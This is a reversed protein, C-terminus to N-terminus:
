GVVEGHHALFQWFGERGLPPVRFTHFNLGNYTLVERSYGRPFYQPLVVQAEHEASPYYFLLGREPDLPYDNDEKLAYAMRRPLDHLEVVNDWWMEGAEIAFVRYDWWHPTGVLFANGFAGESEVFGQLISAAQSYPTLRSSRHNQLYWGRFYIETNRHNAHLIAGCFLLAALALAFRRPMTKLLRMAILGFPLAAVLYVFPLAGLLRVPNPHYQYDSALASPLMLILIVLPMAWMIPDRSSLMRTLWAALGLVLFTAFVIDMEPTREDIRWTFFDGQWTYMHLAERLHPMVYPFDEIVVSIPKDSLVSLDALVQSSRRWYDEPRNLMYHFAPVFVMFAVFGAVAFHLVYRAREHWSVQRVLLTVLIIAIFVVPLFHLSRYAYLGFGLTLGVKVYDSRRNYRAARAAYIIFIGAFLPAFIYRLGERTHWVHTGSVALMGALMLGVAIGLERRKDGFLEYGARCVFPLTLLSIIVSVFKITFFNFGFRPLTALLATLHMHMPERGLNRWLYVEYTGQSIRWSDQLNEVHDFYMERPIEDLQTLRFSAGLIMILGFALLVGKHQSWRFGRWAALWQRAQALPQWGAPALVWSWLGANIFWLLITPGSVRSDAADQWLAISSLAALVVLAVRLATLERQLIQRWPLCWWSIRPEPETIVEVPPAPAAWGGLRPDDNVRRRVQRAAYGVIVWLLLALVFRSFAMPLLVLIAEREASMSDVLLSAGSM